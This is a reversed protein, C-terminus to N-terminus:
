GVGNARAVFDPLLCVYDENGDGGTAVAQAYANKVMSAIPTACRAANAMAEVYRLDKYANSLTFKHSNRNGQLVYGMFTQYFGCDMRGGRIVEDVQAVTLGSKRAIALAESYLAGYGLALFNNILKIRHGDGVGGVHVIRATWPEFIPRLRAFVADSAGVMAHLEGAEAQAPTGGLPSDCYDVGRAALREALQVTVVPDSTSCDVIVTGPRLAAEMEGIVAEVAAADTLCLFVVSSAAALAAASGAERAGQSVLDEVPARNRRGVVTMPYGAKLLNAAIGHGMLGVGVFGITETM